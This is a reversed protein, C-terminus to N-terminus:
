EAEQYRVTQVAMDFRAVTLTEWEVSLSDTGFRSLFLWSIMRTDTGGVAVPFNSTFQVVTDHGDIDDVTAMSQIKMPFQYGDAQWFYMARCSPSDVYSQYFDQGTIRVTNFGAPTEWKLVVDKEFTPTFFEGQMGRMRAFFKRANDVLDAGQNWFSM